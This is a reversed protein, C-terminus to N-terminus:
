SLGSICVCLEAVPRGVAITGELLSLVGLLLEGDCPSLFDSDPVWRVAYGDEPAM